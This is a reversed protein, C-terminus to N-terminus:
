ENLHKLHKGIEQENFPMRLQEPVYIELWMTENDAIIIKVKDRKATRKVEALRIAKDIKMGCRHLYDSLAAKYNTEYNTFIEAPPERLFNLVSMIAIGALIVGVQAKIAIYWSSRNDSLEGAVLLSEETWEAALLTILLGIFVLVVFYLIKSQNSSKDTFKSDVKSKSYM